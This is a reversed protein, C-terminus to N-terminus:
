LMKVRAASMAQVGKHPKGDAIVKKIGTNAEEIEQVISKESPTLSRRIREDKEEQILKALEENSIQPAPLPFGEYKEFPDGPM